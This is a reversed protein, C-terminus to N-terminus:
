GTVEIFLINLRYYLADIFEGAQVRPLLSEPTTSVVLTRGRAVDLWELLRHQDDHPLAGVDHLIMMETREDSPLVLPHGPSWTAVSDRRNAKLLELMKQIPGDLGTILLNVGPKGIKMLNSNVALALRWDEVPRRECVIAEM